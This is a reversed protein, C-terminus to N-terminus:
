SAWFTVRRVDTDFRGNPYLNIWRYGPAEGTVRGSKSTSQYGTAPTSLYCIGNQVVLFEQHVHGSIVLKIAPQQELQQMVQLHNRVEVAVGRDRHEPLNYHTAILAWKESHESILASARQLASESFEIQDGGRASAHNATLLLIQWNRLVCHDDMSIPHRPYVCHAADPHDHNGLVCHVPASFVALADAIYQYTEPKGDHALDGTLLIVDPNQHHQRVHRVVQEFSERTNVGHFLGDPEAFLHLDTLQLVTAHDRPTMQKRDGRM